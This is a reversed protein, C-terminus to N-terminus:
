VIPPLYTLNTVANYKTKYELLTKRRAADAANINWAYLTKVWIQGPPVSQGATGFFAALLTYYTSKLGAENSAKILLSLDNGWNGTLVSDAESAHIKAVYPAFDKVKGFPILDDGVIRIDPRKTGLMDRSVRSVAQGYAYDQNILYVKHISPERAMYDNLVNVQM